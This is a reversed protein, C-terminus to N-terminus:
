GMLGNERPGSLPALDGGAIATALRNLAKHRGSPVQLRRQVGGGAVQIDMLRTGRSSRVLLVNDCRLLLEGSASREVAFRSRRGRTTRVM